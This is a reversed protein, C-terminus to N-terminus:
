KKVTALGLRFIAINERYVVATAVPSYGSVGQDSKYGLPNLALM